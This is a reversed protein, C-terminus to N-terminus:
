KLSQNQAADVIITAGADVIPKEIIALWSLGDRIYSPTTWGKKDIAYNLAFESKKIEKVKNFAITEDDNCDKGNIDFMKKNALMFADELTCGCCPGDKEEPQQFAIRRNAKVKDEDKLALLYSPSCDAVDFWEKLCSNSTIINGSTSSM